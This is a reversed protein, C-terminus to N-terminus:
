LRSSLPPHLKFGSVSGYHAFVNRLDQETYHEPLNGVYISKVQEHTLPGHCVCPNLAKTSIGVPWALVHTCKCARAHPTFCRPLHKCASYSAYAVWSDLTM